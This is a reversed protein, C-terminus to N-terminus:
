DDYDVDFDLVKGTEANIEYEYETKGVHFEIEYIKKGDDHDLKTKVFKADSSKVGAHKLAISKADEATITTEEKPANYEEADYDVSLIKGTAADIEYDYEQNGNYFEIEYIKRGDDYDLKAKVFTVNSAKLNAHDLAIEKAKNIGIDDSPRDWGEIDYDYELVKGTAADLVYDYEREDTYFEIEYVWKGSQKTLETKYFTVDSKNELAHKLALRQAEKRGIYGDKIEEKNTGEFSDADTVTFDSNLTVVKNVGDWLVEKNMIEGISRLPLYTSGEYLIPYIKQGSASYFEKESGEVIITFDPREQVRISKKGINPNSKNSSVSNRSGSITITKNTEDWNVNKGMLEGIARLPLYTSDEYLIPYVADGSASKFDVDEGDVIITFDARLQADQVSVKAAGWAPLALSGALVVSTLLMLYKKM